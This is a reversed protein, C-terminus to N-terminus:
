QAAPRTPLRDIWWALLAESDDVRYAACMSRGCARLHSLRVKLDTSASASRFAVTAETWAKGEAPLPLSAVERAGLKLADSSLAVGLHRRAAVMTLPPSSFAAAIKWLDEPAGSDPTVSVLPVAPLCSGDADVFAELTRTQSAVLVKPVLRSSAWRRMDANLSDLRVRPHSWSAKYLRAPVTGWRDHAPDVLGATVLRPVGADGHAANVVCGELGYYQDRFDATATAVDGVLDDVQLSCDPVARATALLNSWTLDDTGPAPAAALDEFERGVVLRTRGAVTSRPRCLVPACVDVAADFVRERAVWLADLSWHALVASRAAAAGRSALLSAPQVLCVVSEQHNALRTAQVLFLSAPNAYGKAVDGFRDRLAAARAPDASTAEALPNLFPPNGVVADVGGPAGWRGLLAAWEGNTALLADATVVRDVPDDAGATALATRCARVADPNVDVGVVCHGFAIRRAEAESLGLEVLTRHIREGASLLFAGDGCSPDLIRLASVARPGGVRRAALLPNLALDLLGSVVDDPTYWAGLSRRQDSGSLLQRHDVDM